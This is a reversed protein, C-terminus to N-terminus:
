GLEECAYVETQQTVASFDEDAPPRNASEIYLNLQLDMLVAGKRCCAAVTRQYGVPASLQKQAGKLSARGCVVEIAPQDGRRVYVSIRLNSSFKTREDRRMQLGRKTENRLMCQAAKTGSSPTTGWKSKALPGHNRIVLSAMSRHWSRNREGCFISQTVKTLPQRSVM